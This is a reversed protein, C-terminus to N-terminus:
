KNQTLIKHMIICLVDDDDDQDEHDTNEDDNNYCKYISAATQHYHQYFYIVNLVNLGFFINIVFFGVCSFNNIKM